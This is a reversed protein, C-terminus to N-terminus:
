KVKNISINVRKRCVVFDYRERERDRKRHGLVVVRVYTPTLNGDVLRYRYMFARVLVSCISIQAQTTQKIM